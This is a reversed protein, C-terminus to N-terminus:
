LKQKPCKGTNQRATIQRNERAANISAELHATLDARRRAKRQTVEIVAATTPKRIGAKPRFGLKVM